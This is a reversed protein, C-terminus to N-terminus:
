DNMSTAGCALRQWVLRPICRGKSERCRDPIPPAYQLAKPWLAHRRPRDQAALRPRRKRSSRVTTRHAERHSLGLGTLGLARWLAESSFASVDPAVESSTSNAKTHRTGAAIMRFAAVERSRVRTEGHARLPSRSKAHYRATRHDDSRSGRREATSVSPRRSARADPTMPRIAEHGDRVHRNSNM